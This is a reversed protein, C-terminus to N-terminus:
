YGDLYIKMKGKAVFGLRFSRKDNDFFHMVPVSKMIKNSFDESPASHERYMDLHGQSDHMFNVVDEDYSTSTISRSASQEDEQSVSCVQVLFLLWFFCQLRM